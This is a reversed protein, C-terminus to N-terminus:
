AQRPVLSQIVSTAKNKTLAVEANSSSKAIADYLKAAQDDVLTKATARAAPTLDTRNDLEAKKAAVLQDLTQRAEAKVASVLSVARLTELAQDSAPNALAAQRAREITQRLVAKEERTLDRSSNLALRKERALDNIVTIATTDSSAVPTAPSAVVNPRVDAAPHIGAIVENAKRKTLAVEANTASKAIADQLKNAESDVLSKATAKATSSLDTRRDLEAKKEFVLQALVQRAETKISSVLSVSKLAELAQSSEIQALAGQRYREIAQRVIAKEERTLDRNSNLALRKERALDNIVTIASVDSSTVVAASDSATPIATVVFDAVPNIGQIVQAFRGKVISVEANTRSKGLADHLKDAERDIQNQTAQKTAVTLDDRSIIEGKKEDVLRKLMQRAEAKVSSQLSIETLREIGKAQEQVLRSLPASEVAAVAQSREQEILSRLTAKEELTLETSSTLALRKERAATEIADLIPKRNIIPTVAVTKSVGNPLSVEVLISDTKAPFDDLSTVVRKSIQDDSLTSDNGRRVILSNLIIQETLPANVFRALRLVAVDVAHVAITETAVAGAENAYQLQRRHLGAETVQGVLRGDATAELGPFALEDSLRNGVVQHVTVTAPRAATVTAVPTDVPTQTFVYVDRKLTEVSPAVPVNARTPQVVPQLPTPGNDTIILEGEEDTELVASGRLGEVVPELPAVDVPLTALPETAVNVVSADPLQDTDSAQGQDVPVSVDLQGASESQTSSAVEVVQTGQEQAQATPTMTLFLSTALAVSAAGSKLTRIGYHLQKDGKLQAKGM